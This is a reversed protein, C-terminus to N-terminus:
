SRRARARLANRAERSLLEPPAIPNGDVDFFPTPRHLGRVRMGALRLATKLLLGPGTGAETGPLTPGTAGSGNLGRPPGLAAEVAADDARVFTRLVSIFPLDASAMGNGVPTRCCAAYWRFPGKPSLQIARLHAKGELHLRAPAMPFLDTGGGEDLVREGVGLHLAFCRCDVCYCVFHLATRPSLERAEGTIAGCACGVPLTEAM